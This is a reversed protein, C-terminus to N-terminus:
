VSSLSLAYNFSGLKNIYHSIYVFKILVNINNLNVFANFANIIVSDYILISGIQM